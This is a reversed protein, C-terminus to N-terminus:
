QQSGRSAMAEGTRDGGKVQRLQKVAHRAHIMEEPACEGVFLERNALIVRKAPRFQGGM